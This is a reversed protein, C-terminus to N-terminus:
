NAKLLEQVEKDTTQPFNQYWRGVAGFDVPSHLVVVKDVTARLQNISDHAGVPVALVIKKPDQQKLLEIAVKASSGTAVGDDVLIATKGTSRIADRDGLYKQLRRQMKQREKNEVREVQDESINLRKIVGRDLLKIGDPAIAGMAFEPHFPVGLKRVIVVELPANLKQAVEYAVPLGGRAMGYVVVDEPDQFELLERALRRGAAVRDQFIKAESLFVGM